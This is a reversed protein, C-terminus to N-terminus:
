RFYSRWEPTNMVTQTYDWQNSNHGEYRPKDESQLLMLIDYANLEPYQSLDIGKAKLINEITLAYDNVNAELSPYQINPGLGFLNHLPNDMQRGGETAWQSASLADPINRQRTIPFISNELLNIVEQSLNTQPTQNSYAPPPTPSPIPQPQQYPAMTPSPSPPPTPTDIPFQQPNVYNNSLYQSQYWNKKMESEPQPSIINSNITPYPKTAYQDAIVGNGRQLLPINLGRLLELIGNFPNM